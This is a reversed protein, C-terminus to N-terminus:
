REYGKIIKRLEETGEADLIELGLMTLDVRRRSLMGGCYMLVGARVGEDCKKWVDRLPLGTVDSVKKMTCLRSVPLEEPNLRDIAKLMDMVDDDALYDRLENKTMKM